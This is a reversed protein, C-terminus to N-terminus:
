RVDLHYTAAVEFSDGDSGRFWLEHRGPEPPPLWVWLGWVTAPFPVPFFTVPNGTAGRVLVHRPTGIETVPVTVGDLTADGKAGAVVPAGRRAEGGILWINFVPFFLPRGAAVTCTREVSGGFTGALFWVSAPQVRAAHKGTKDKIPNRHSPQAAPWRVWRTVLDQDSGPPFPTPAEVRRLASRVSRSM